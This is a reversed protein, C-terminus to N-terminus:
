QIVNLAKEYEANNPELQHARQYAAQAGKTNGLRQYAIGLDFWYVSLSPQYIVADGFWRAAEKDRGALLAEYGLKGEEYGGKASLNIRPRGFISGWLGFVILATVAAVIQFRRRQSTIAAGVLIGLVAGGAHAINAVRFINMVTTIVCLVFWGVFLQVTRSDVADRFRDDRSSLIWLLGFLGYGVGSLGVGGAAFAFELSGSGIAFLAILAATKLHGYVQEVLTGFVWVWYINFALHLIDTHPFMSTVLRWIEGRRIMATEFLPSIDVKSWWAVTVAIALVATGATVPFRPFETWKPAHRVINRYRDTSV